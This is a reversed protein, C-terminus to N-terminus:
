GFLKGYGLNHYFMGGRKSENEKTSFGHRPDTVEMTLTKKILSYLVTIDVYHSYGSKDGVLKQNIYVKCQYDVAGFHLLVKDKKFGKPITFIKRYYLYEAPKILKNVGSLPSEPSFPVQNEKTHQCNLHSQYFQM